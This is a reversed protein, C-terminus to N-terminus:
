LIAETACGTECGVPEGASHIRGTAATLRTKTISTGNGATQRSRSRAVLMVAETSTRSEATCIRLGAWNETNGLRSSNSVSNRRDSM